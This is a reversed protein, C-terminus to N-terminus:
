RVIGGIAQHVAYRFKLFETLQRTLIQDRPKPL